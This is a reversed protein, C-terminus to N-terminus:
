HLVNKNESEVNHYRTRVFIFIKGNSLLIKRNIKINSIEITKYIFCDNSSDIKFLFFAIMWDSQFGNLILLILIVGQIQVDIFHIGPHAENLRCAIM